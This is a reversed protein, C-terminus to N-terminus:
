EEQQMDKTGRKGLVFVASLWIIMGGNTGFTYLGYAFSSNPLVVLGLASFLIMWMMPHFTVAWRPLVTRGRLIKVFLVVQPIWLAFFGIMVGKDMAGDMAVSLAGALEEGGNQNMWAYVFVIIAYFYHILILSFSGLGFLFNVTKRQKEDTVIDGMHIFCPYYCLVGAAGLAMTLVPRLLSYNAAAHGARLYSFAEGALPAADVFGLLWDGIGLLLAGILGLLIYKTKM